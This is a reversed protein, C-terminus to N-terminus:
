AALLLQQALPTLQEKIAARCRTRIAAPSCNWRKAASAGSLGEQGYVAVLIDRTTETILSLEFAANILDEAQWETAQPGPPERNELEAVVSATPLPIEGTHTWERRAAKLTDLALNAAISSPRRNLPYRAIQCWMHTVLDNLAHPQEAAAGTYSMRVLKGLMAQLAIRGGLTDGQQYRQLLFGLVTDPASRVAKLVQSPTQCSTLPRCRSSWAVCVDDYADELRNWEDNLHDVLNAVM